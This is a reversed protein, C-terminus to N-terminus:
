EDELDPQPSMAWDGRVEVLAPLLWLGGSKEHPPAAAAPPWKGSPWQIRARARCPQLGMPLTPSGQSLGTTMVMPEGDIGDVSVIARRYMHLQQDMQDPVRGPGHQVDKTPPLGQVCQPLRIDRGHSPGWHHM